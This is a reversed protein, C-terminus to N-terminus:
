AGNVTSGGHKDKLVVIFKRRLEKQYCVFMEFTKFSVSRYLLFKRKKRLPKFETKKRIENSM